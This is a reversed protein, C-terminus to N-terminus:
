SVKFNQPNGTVVSVSPNLRTELQDIYTQRNLLRHVHCMKFLIGKEQGVNGLVGAPFFTSYTM